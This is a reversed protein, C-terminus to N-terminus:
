FMYQSSLEESVSSINRDKRNASQHRSVFRLNYFTMVLPCNALMCLFSQVKFCLMLKFEANFLVAIKPSAHPNKLTRDMVSCKANAVHYNRCLLYQCRLGKSYNCAYYYEDTFVIQASGSCQRKSDPFADTFMNRMIKQQSYRGVM